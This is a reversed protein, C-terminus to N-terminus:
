LHNNSAQKRLFLIGIFLIIPFIMGTLLGMKLGIQEPNLNNTQGLAILTNSKQSLDSVFGAMWPGISAGVDGFMALIAFMGVGGKPFSQATLSLAGPWMLAVSLGTLACGLLSIIPVQVFVVVGYCFLCLISSAMLARKLNIRHGWIGYVVRGIGMFVAFLAPGLIDGVMKPIQLGKEAFLSSWQSMTLESAGASMMLVLAIIFIHSSFLDKVPTKEEHSVTPMLPVKTFKFLNYIPILSWIIPLMYWINTGFIKILITSVIVVGLQGWCYFSHLLSMASAKAEGPLSEVIPSIVVELLGGGVAYIAVAIALGIFPSSFILPFIGLGILGIAGFVHAFTAAKRYGIRDVYKIAVFDTLIQTGFNIVILRGIKEFSIGFSDHFIVFLLPALNNVIALTIFGLYCAHLTSKYTTKM